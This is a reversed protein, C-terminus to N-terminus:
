DHQWEKKQKEYQECSLQVCWFVRMDDIKVLSDKPNKMAQVFMVKQKGTDDNIMEIRYFQMMMLDRTYAECIM